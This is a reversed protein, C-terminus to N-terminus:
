CCYFIYLIFVARCEQTNIVEEKVIVIIINYVQRQRDKNCIRAATKKRKKIEDERDRKTKRM